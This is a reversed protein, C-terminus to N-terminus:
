KSVSTTNEFEGALRAAMIGTDSKSAEQQHSRVLRHDGVALVIICIIFLSGPAWRGYSLRRPAPGKNAWSRAPLGPACTEPARIRGGPAYRQHQAM